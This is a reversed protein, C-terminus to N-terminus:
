FMKLHQKQIFPNRVRTFLLTQLPTEFLEAELIRPVKAQQQNTPQASGCTSWSAYVDRLHFEGNSVSESFSQLTEILGQYRWRKEL